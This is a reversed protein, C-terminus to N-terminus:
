MVQSPRATTGKVKIVSGYRGTSNTPTIRFIVEVNERVWADMWRISIAPTLTPNIQRIMQVIQEREKVSTIQEAEGMVIVSKWNTNDVVDEVQLCVRPNDRIIEAKMGDTTYIYLYPDDYAYNVPVVYPQNDRACALHGYSVRALLAQIESNAMEEVQIM